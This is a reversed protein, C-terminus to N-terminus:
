EESPPNFSNIYSDVEDSTLHRTDVFRSDMNNFDEVGEYYVKMKVNLNEGRNIAGVIQSLAPAQNPLTESVLSQPIEHFKKYTRQTRMKENKKLM